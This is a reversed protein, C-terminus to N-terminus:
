PMVENYIAAIQKAAKEHHKQDTLQKLPVSEKGNWLYWMGADYVAQYVYPDVYPELLPIYQWAKFPPKDWDYISWVYGDSAYVHTPDYGNPVERDDPARDTIWESM